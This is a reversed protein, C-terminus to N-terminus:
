WDEVSKPHAYTTVFKENPQYSIGTIDNDYALILYQSWLFMWPADDWITKQIQCYLKAREDSDVTQKAEKFLEEVKPDSYFAGNLGNPPWTAKTFMQMQTPADLAMPAWGLMFLDYTNHTSNVLTVYSAWDMTSLKVNVGVQRLYSAMAQSAQFDQTYRGRPTGMKITLNSAGAEALLKKAKEPNYDYGGIECHGFLADAFPSNMRKAAGFLVNDIIAQKNIAYNFAKRIKKNDFPPKDTVFAVFISRDSPAKLVTIDDRAELAKLDSVPPNMIMDLQGALLGAELANSEPIIKFVVKDYYPARGWYDEYREFVLKSGRTRSILKYPGTGIPKLMESYTNGNKGVSSPSVIAAMTASLNPLLTPSPSKLNLRIVYPKVVDISEIVQYAAGIRVNVKDSILRGLSFKAAKANFPTGDHFTVDKRLQLTLALGDDSWSWSKALLPQLKGKEDFTLLTQVGYDVVNMVTTTTQQAPDLTDLTIGIGITMTTEATGNEAAWASPVLCALSLALFLMQLLRFKKM